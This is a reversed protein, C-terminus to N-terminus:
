GVATILRLSRYVEIVFMHQMAISNQMGRPRARRGPAASTKAGNKAQRAITKPDRMKRPALVVASM